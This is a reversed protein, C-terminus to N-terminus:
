FLTTNLVVYKGNNISISLVLKKPFSLYNKQTNEIYIGCNHSHFCWLM